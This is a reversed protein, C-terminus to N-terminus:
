SNHNKKLKIKCLCCSSSVHKILNGPKHIYTILKTRTLIDSAMKHGGVKHASPVIMNALWYSNSIIPLERQGTDAKLVIHSMRDTTVDISRNVGEITQTYGKITKLSGQCFLIDTESIADEFLLYWARRSGAFNSMYSSALLALISINPALKPCIDLM